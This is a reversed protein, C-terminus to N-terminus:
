RCVRSHQQDKFSGVKFVVNDATRQCEM